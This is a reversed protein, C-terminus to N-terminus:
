NIDRLENELIADAVKRITSRENFAVQRLWEYNKNSIRIVTTEHADAQKKSDEVAASNGEKYKM